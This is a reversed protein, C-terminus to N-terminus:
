TRNLPSWGESGMPDDYYGRVIAEGTQGRSFVVGCYTCREARSAWEEGVKDAQNPSLVTVRGTARCDQAPCKSM